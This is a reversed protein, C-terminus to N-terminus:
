GRSFSLIEHSNRARAARRTQRNDVAILFSALKQASHSCGLIMLFRLTKLTEVMICFSPIHSASHGAFVLLICHQLLRGIQTARSKRHLSETLAWMFGDFGNCM